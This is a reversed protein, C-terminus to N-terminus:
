GGEGGRTPRGSDKPFCDEVWRSEVSNTIFAKGNHDVKTSWGTPPNLIETFSAGNYLFQHGRADQHISYAIGTASPGNDKMWKDYAQQPSLGALPRGLQEYRM